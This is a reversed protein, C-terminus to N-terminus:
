RRGPPNRDLWMIDRVAPEAALLESAGSRPKTVLTVAGGVAAALARLHPLHWIMDGIGPLPQVVALRIGSDAQGPAVLGPDILGPTFLAPAFLSAAFLAPSLPSM